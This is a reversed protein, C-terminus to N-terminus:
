LANAIGQAWEKLAKEADYQAAEISTDDGKLFRRTTNWVCWPYRGEKNPEHVELCFGDMNAYHTTPPFGEFKKWELKTEFM